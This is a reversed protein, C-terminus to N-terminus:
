SLNSLGAVDGFLDRFQGPTMGVIRKFERIHHSQDAFADQSGAGLSQQFRIVKIFDHPRFGARDRIIRQVQRQSYGTTQAIDAVTAVQSGIIRDILYNPAIVGGRALRGTLTQLISWVQDKDALRLLRNVEALDTGAIDSIELTSGVIDIPRDSWVGPRLRIGAYDFWPGLDFEVAKVNPTMVLAGDFQRGSSLDFVIDICGDPLVLYQFGHELRQRSRLRWFCHALGAQLAAPAREEYSVSARWARGIGPQIPTYM